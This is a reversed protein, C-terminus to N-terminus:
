ATDGAALRSSVRLVASELERRAPATLYPLLVAFHHQFGREWDAWTVEDLGELERLHDMWYRSVIWLSRALVQLDVRLDRRLMGEKSMRLLLEHLGELDAAMDPDRRLVNPDSSFQMHDRLLFRNDWALNMSFLVGEVYDDAVAGRPYAARHAQTSQRARAELAVVLDRKTRFHYWLNGEAIGVAAAIEALTTGAYGKENFLRRSADLIRDRTSSRDTM